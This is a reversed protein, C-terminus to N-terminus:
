SLPKTDKLDIKAPQATAKGIQSRQEATLIVRM